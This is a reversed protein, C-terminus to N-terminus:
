KKSNKILLSRRILRSNPIVEIYNFGVSIGKKSLISRQEELKKRDSVTKHVAVGKLYNGNMDSYM